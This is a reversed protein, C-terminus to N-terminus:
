NDSVQGANRYNEFTQFDCLTPAYIEIILDQRRTSKGRLLRVTKLLEAVSRAIPRKHAIKTAQCIRHNLSTVLEDCGQLKQLFGARSRAVRDRSGTVHFRAM